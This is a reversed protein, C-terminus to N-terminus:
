QNRISTVQAVLSACWIPHGNWVQDTEFVDVEGVPKWKWFRAGSPYVLVVKQNFVALVAGGGIVVDAYLGYVKITVRRRDFWSRDTGAQERSEIKSEVTAYPLTQPSHLRGAGPLQVFLSPLSVAAMWVAELAKLTDDDVLAVPEVPGAVIWLAQIARLTDDDVLALTIIPPSPPPPVPPVPPVPPAPPIPLPFPGTFPPALLLIDIISFSM